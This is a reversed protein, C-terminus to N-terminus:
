KSIRVNGCSCFVIAPGFEKAFAWKVIRGECDIRLIVDGKKVGAVIFGAAARIRAIVEVIETQGKEDPGPIVLEHACSVTFDVGDTSNDFVVFVIRKKGSGVGDNVLDPVM